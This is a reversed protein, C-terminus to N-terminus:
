HIGDKPNVLFEFSLPRSIRIELVFAEDPHDLDVEQYFLSPYYEGLVIRNSWNRMGEHRSTELQLEDYPQIGSLSLVLFPHTSSHKEVSMGPGGGISSFSTSNGSAQQSNVPVFSAFTGNTLTLEGPPVLAVVQITVGNLSQSQRIEMWEDPQTVALNPIKMRESNSFDKAEDRYVRVHIKWAPERPSLHHRTNRTADELFQFRTRANSWGMDASDIRTKLEVGRDPENPWVRFSQLTLAAPGNSQTQPLPMPNWKLFPPQPPTQVDFTGILTNDEAFMRFRFHSQRRPYATLTLGYYQDSAGGPGSFSCFGRVTPYRYGDDDEATYSGIPTGTMGVPTRVRLYITLGNSRGWGCGGVVVPPLWRTLPFPLHRRLSAVTPTDSSFQEEGVRTGVFEIVTGNTLTITQPRSAQLSKTRKWIGIATLLVLLLVVVGPWLRM